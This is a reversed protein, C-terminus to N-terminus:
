DAKEQVADVDITLFPDNNLSIYPERVQVNSTRSARVIESIDCGVIGRITRKERSDRLLNESEM